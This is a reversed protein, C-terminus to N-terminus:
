QKLLNKSTNLENIKISYKSYSKDFSSSLSSSHNPVCFELKQKDLIILDPNTLDM